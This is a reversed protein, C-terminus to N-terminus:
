GGPAPGPGPASEPALVVRNRGAAKAAYLAEDARQLVVALAMAGHATAVGISATINFASDQHSLALGALAVRIREAALLAADPATGVLLLVFEEGGWRAALDETRLAVRLADAVAVLAADGAAHGLSDNLRKFHDIDIMLVAWPGDSRQARQAEHRAQRDFSRRNLLRTLPDQEAQEV